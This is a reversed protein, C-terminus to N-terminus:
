LPSETQKTSKEPLKRAKYCEWNAIFLAAVNPIAYLTTFIAQNTSNQSACAAYSETSRGAIDIGGDEVASRTWQLPDVISWTILIAMNISLLVILPRLVDKAEIQVRRFHTASEFLRNLRYTECFLSSFVVVFGISFVYVTSMCAIDLGM